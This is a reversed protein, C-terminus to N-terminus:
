EQILNFLALSSFILSADMTNGLMTYTVFTTAATVVPISFFMFRNLAMLREATRIRALEVTRLEAIRSEISQEWSRWGM